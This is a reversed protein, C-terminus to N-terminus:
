YYFSKQRFSKSGRTRNFAIFKSATPAIISYDPKRRPLPSVRRRNASLASAAVAEEPQLDLQSRVTQYLSRTQALQTANSVRLQVVQNLRESLQQGQGQPDILDHQQRFRQLRTQLVEVRQQLQPLQEEVFEIGQRIDTQREELSYRLYAQAVLDLTFKLREPDSDEYTVSLINTEPIPNLKLNTLDSESYRTAIQQMIPSMIQPSQLIRLETANVGDVQNQNEQSNLSEPLSSTLKNEVTVPETLIEFRAQYTPQSTLAAIASVAAVLTTFSVVIPLRRRIAALVQGLDLGGEDEEEPQRYVVSLPQSENDHKKSSLHHFKKNAAMKKTELHQHRM